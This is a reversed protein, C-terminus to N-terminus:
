LDLASAILEYQDMREQSRYRSARDKPRRTQQNYYNWAASEGYNAPAGSFPHKVRTAPQDLGFYRRVGFFDILGM